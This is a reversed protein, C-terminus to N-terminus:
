VWGQAGLLAEFHLYAPRPASQASESCGPAARRRGSAPPWAASRQTWFLGPSLAMCGHAM